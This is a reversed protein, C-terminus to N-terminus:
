QCLKSIVGCADDLESYALEYAAAGAVIRKISGLMDASLPGSPRVIESLIRRLADMPRVPSLTAEGVSNRRLFVIWGVPRADDPALPAPTIYRIRKGDRRRHVKQSEITPAFQRILRWAGSKAGPPLLVGRAGSESLITLDDSGYQFGAALLRLTLTTKGAGSRGNILLARGTRVLCASHLVLDWQPLARDIIFRLLTSALEESPCSFVSQNDRVAHVSEGEDLLFLPEGSVPVPSRLHGVIPPLVDQLRPSAYRLSLEYSGLKVPLEAFSEPKLDVVQASVLGLELWLQLTERVYRIALDEDIGSRCMERVVFPSKAGEEIHCWILAATENLEYIRQQPQCFVAMQSGIMFFTTGNAPRVDYETLRRM